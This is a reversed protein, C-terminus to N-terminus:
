LERHELTVRWGEATFIKYFENALAVSRHQGGTCGFAITLSYKGEKVYCPLLRAIIEHFRNVFEKTIDQKMVYQAVKKNNGTLKKLSSVYYPNPIFRVDIVWDAEAPMGHKYGFSMLNLVFSAKKTKSGFLKDLESNMEAVKLSSTDIVYNAHSRLEALEEREIQIAERTMLSAALPHTRRAENFRRILAEDSAEIFLIKFDINIDDELSIITEKLDGFFQGGRIDVVFAAKQIKRKGTMALDIFNKILAPPMNDICYYGKDEFWDAAKTKGAGSLGTIMVVEM